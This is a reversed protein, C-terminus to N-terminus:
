VHVESRRREGIQVRLYLSVESDPKCAYAHGYPALLSSIGILPLPPPLLTWPNTSPRIWLLVASSFVPTGFSVATRSRVGRM